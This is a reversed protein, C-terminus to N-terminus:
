AVPHAPPARPALSARALSAHTAPSATWSSVARVGTDAVLAGIAERASDRALCAGHCVLCASHDHTPASDGYDGGPSEVDAVAPAGHVAPGTAHALAGLLACLAVVMSLTRVGAANRLM